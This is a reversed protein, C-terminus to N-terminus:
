ENIFFERTVPDTGNHEWYASESFEVPIAPMGPVFPDLEARVALQIHCNMADELADGPLPQMDQARVDGKESRCMAFVKQEIIRIGCARTFDRHWTEQLITSVESRKEVRAMRHVTARIVSLGIGYRLPLAIFGMLPIIMMCLLVIAAGFDAMSSGTANRM